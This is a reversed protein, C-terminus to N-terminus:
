PGTFAEWDLSEIDYDDAWHVGLSQGNRTPSLRLSVYARGAFLGPPLVFCCGLEPCYAAIADIEHGDYSRKRFGEPARRTSHCQVSVVEGQRSAWKCQVRLLRPGIDLVLDYRTPAFPIAVGYGLRVAARLVAAEAIAGKRDTSIMASGM